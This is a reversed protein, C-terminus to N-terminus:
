QRHRFSLPYAGRRTELMPDAPAIGEPVNSPNFLTAKDAAAPDAIMRDIRITGLNALQRSEPWAVSPNEIVDSAEALQAYWIFSVPAHNLRVPLESQLYNPGVTALRDASLFVEGDVPAFRYRVFRRRGAEDTFQFANVGFYSLTAYSEPVPKQTTLFTAAIPHTALFADLPTPKGAGSGSAGIALLLDRFEASTATPFGNFSHTVIDATSGDPSQFKIAFGRPNADKTTDPITPIGTFNSFRVRIPVAGGAFLVAKSLTAAERSPNFSGAAMIGKAHVARAHNDGFASYLANVMERPAPIITAIPVAMPQAPMPHARYLPDLM